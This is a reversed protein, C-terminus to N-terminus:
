KTHILKIILDDLKQSLKLIGLSELDGMVEVSKKM